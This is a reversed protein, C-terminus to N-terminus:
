TSSQTAMRELLRTLRPLTLRQDYLLARQRAARQLKMREDPNRLLYDVARAVASPNNHPVLLGERQHDIVENVPPGESGVICCGCAMAELLSWGLIFPYSLYVHVTSAQLVKILHPHPIRGLFHIRQEDLQGKLEDHMVERLAKGSPHGGGYGNENDGVILVRLDPHAHQLCPLARMFTDFGRLRELQRNVLTLVPVSRNIPIGRIAFHVSDDPRALTKADIGEHIVQLRDGRFAEPLSNAQHDTPMVWANAMSLASRTLLNRSIQSRALSEASNALQPDVGHGMHEPRLWLEPWLIQPVGPWVTNLALTEGWGCHAAIADPIWGQQNLTKCLEAVADARLLAENWLCSGQALGPPSAPPEEYRLISLGPLEPLPRQHSCIGVVEHGRRILHPLLQRFQGPFNQHILLFRVRQEPWAALWVIRQAEEHNM